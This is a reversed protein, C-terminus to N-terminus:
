RGKKRDITVLAHLGEERFTLLLTMDTFNELLRGLDSKPSPADPQRPWLASGHLSCAVSGDADFVYHGGDPCYFHTDYITEGLQRIEAPLDAGPKRDALPVVARALSSLPGLNHLCAARNNEAWGLKYSPVIRKWNEPRMRVMAHAPQEATGRHATQHASDLAAIDSLIFPKSAIYLGNGIRAWFLRWKIPGIQFAYAHIPLGSERLRYFDQNFELFGGLSENQRALAALQRDLRDLFDDVVKADHVPVSIYVPSQLVSIVLGILLIENGNM